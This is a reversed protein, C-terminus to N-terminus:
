IKMLSEFVVENKWLEHVLATSSHNDHSSLFVDLQNKSADNLLNLKCLTSKIHRCVAMSPEIVQIHNGAITQIDGYLHAYHTCGLVLTDIGEKRLPHIFQELLSYTEPHRGKTEISHALGPCPQCFFDTEKSFRSLLRQFSESQLTLTTALVGVKKKKSQESAPKIGPEIGFIPYPFRERLISITNSTATNCAVVIAKVPYDCLYKCVEIARESLFKSSKTGYPLHLQDAFYVIQEDPLIQNICKALSLGGVGSDFIGIPHTRSM